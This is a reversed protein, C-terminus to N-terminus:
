IEQVAGTGTRSTSKPALSQLTTEGQHAGDSLIRWQSEMMIESPAGELSIGLSPLFQVSYVKLFLSVTDNVSPGKVPYIQM